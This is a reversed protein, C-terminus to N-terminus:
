DAALTRASPNSGWRADRLHALLVQRMEPIAVPIVKRIRPSNFTARMEHEAVRERAPSGAPHTRAQGPPGAKCGPAVGYDTACGKAIQQREHAFVESLPVM